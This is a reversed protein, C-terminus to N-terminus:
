AEEPPKVDGLPGGADVERPDELPSIPTRVREGNVSPEGPAKTAFAQEPTPGMDTTSTADRVVIKTEEIVREPVSEVEYLAQLKGFPEDLNAGFEILPEIVVGRADGGQWQGQSLPGAYSIPSEGIVRVRDYAFPKYDPSAPVYDESAPDGVAPTGVTKPNKLKLVTDITYM